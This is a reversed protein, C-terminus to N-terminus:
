RVTNETKTIMWLESKGSNTMIDFHNRSYIIRTGDPSIQPSSAYELEFVDRPQFISDDIEPADQANVTPAALFLFM